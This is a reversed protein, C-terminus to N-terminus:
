KREMVGLGERFFPVRTPMAPFGGYNLMNNFKTACDIGHFCGAYCDIADGANMGYIRDQLTLWTTFLVGPNDDTQKTISMREGSAVHVLEGLEFWDYDRSGDVYNIRVRRGDVSLVTTSFKFSNRDVKCGADYLIHGCARGATITPLRRRIPSELQNTVRLKAEADECEISVLPGSWITEVDGPPSYLRKVTVTVVKPPPQAFWRKVIPHDVRLPIELLQDSTGVKVVEISKRDVAEATYTIGGVVQDRESSCMRYTMAGVVVEFLERPTATSGSEDNLVADTTTTSAPDAQVVRAIKM